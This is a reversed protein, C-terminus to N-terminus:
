QQGYNYLEMYFRNTVSRDFEAPVVDLTVEKILAKKAINAPENIELRYWLIVDSYSRDLTNDTMYGKTIFELKKFDSQFNGTRAATAPTVVLNAPDVWIDPTPAPIRMNAQIQDWRNTAAQSRVGNLVQEAFLAAMTENNARSSQQLTSPFLSMIGLMGISAVMLAMAIEILTFGHERIKNM